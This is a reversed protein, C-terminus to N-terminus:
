RVRAGPQVGKAFRTQHSYSTEYGNAHRITTQRGYGGAWGAKEVTGNGPSIIPTGHPASWDVGWHMKSYGLIPHRRMGFGSRFKGSPVPNRLLFQRASRGEEDYYDVSGDQKRFKYFRSSQGNFNAQVFLLDREINDGIEGDEPLSYFLELGDDPRIRSRFDVDAAVMKIIRNAISTPLDHAAIARHIADYASPLNATNIIPVRPEDPEGRLKAMVGRDVPEVARVYQGNDDLAITLLHETGRYVSARKVAWQEAGPEKVLGLRVMQGGSLQDSNLITGIAEGMRAIGQYEVTSLADAIAINQRAEVLDERYHFATEDANTGSPAVSVNQPVIRAIQPAIATELAPDVVGFRLPDLYHASAVKTEGGSLLAANTRLLEEAEDVSIAFEMVDVDTTLEFDTIKIAAETEVNAGYISAGTVGSDPVPPVNGEAFIALPDFPPYSATETQVAALAIRLHEFPKTRIVNADGVQTVTSVSMRRRDPDGLPVPAAAASVLRGTKGGNDYNARAAESGQALSAVEPPTALLQKGDLATLLAAGMLATSAVGTLITGSLWRLSVERRDPTRVKGTVLPADDPDLVDNAPHGSPM